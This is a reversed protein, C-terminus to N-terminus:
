PRVIQGTVIDVEFESDRNRDGFAGWRLLALDDDVGEGLRAFEESDPNIEFDEGSRVHTLLYGSHGQDSSTVGYRVANPYMDLIAAAVRDKLQENTDDVPVGEM